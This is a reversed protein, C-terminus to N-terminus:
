KSFVLPKWFNSKSETQAFPRNFGLQNCLWWLGRKGVSSRQVQTSNFIVRQHWCISSSFVRQLPAGHPKGVVPEQGQSSTILWRPAVYDELPMQSSFADEDKILPHLYLLLALKQFLTLVSMSFGPLALIHENHRRPRQKAEAADRFIKRGTIKNEDSQYFFFKM